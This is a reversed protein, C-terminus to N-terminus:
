VPRPRMVATSPILLSVTVLGIHCLSGSVTHLMGFILHCRRGTKHGFVKQIAVRNKGGKGKKVKGGALPLAMPNGEVSEEVAEWMLVNIHLPEPDSNLLLRKGRDFIRPRHAM